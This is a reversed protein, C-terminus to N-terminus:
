NEETPQKNMFNIAWRMVDPDNKPHIKTPTDRYTIKKKGCETCIFGVAATEEYSGGFKPYITFKFFDIFRWKHFLHMKNRKWIIPIALWSEAQNKM